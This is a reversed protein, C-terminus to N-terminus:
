GTTAQRKKERGPLASGNAAEEAANGPPISFSSPMAESLSSIVSSRFPHETQAPIVSGKSRSVCRADHKTTESQRVCRTRLSCHSHCERAVSCTPECYGVFASGARRSGQSLAARIRLAWMLTPISEKNLSLRTIRPRQTAHIGTPPPSLNYEARTGLFVGGLIGWGEGVPIRSVCGTGANM